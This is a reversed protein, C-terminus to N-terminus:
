VLNNAFALYINLVIIITAYISLLIYIMKMIKSSSHNISFVLYILWVIFTCTIFVKNRIVVSLFFLANVIKMGKESVLECKIREIM